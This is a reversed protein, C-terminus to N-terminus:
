ITCLLVWTEGQLSPTQSSCFVEPLSKSRMERRTLAGYFLLINSHPLFGIHGEGACDDFQHLVNGNTDWIEIRNEGRMLMYDLTALLHQPQM